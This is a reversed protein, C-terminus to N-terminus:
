CRLYDSNIILYSFYADAGLHLLGRRPQPVAGAQDGGRRPLHRRPSSQRGHGSPAEGPGQRPQLRREPEGPHEEPERGREEDDGPRRLVSLREDAEAGRGGDGQLDRPRTGRPQAGQVGSLEESRMHLGAEPVSLVIIILIYTIKPTVGIM